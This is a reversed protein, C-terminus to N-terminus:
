AVPAPALKLSHDQAVGIRFSAPAGAAVTVTVKPENVGQLNLWGAEDDGFDIFGMGTETYGNRLSYNDDQLEKFSTVRIEQGGIVLKVADIISDSYVSNTVDYTEFGIFRNLAGSTLRFEIDTGASANSALQQSEYMHRLQGVIPSQRMGPYSVSRVTINFANLKGAALTGDTFGGVGANTDLVLDFTNLKDAPIAAFLDQLAEDNEHHIEFTFDSTSTNGFSNVPAIQQETIKALAVALKGTLYVRRGDSTEISVRDFFLGPDCVSPNGGTYDGSVQVRVLHESVLSDKKLPIRIQDGGNGAGKGDLRVVKTTKRILSTAM